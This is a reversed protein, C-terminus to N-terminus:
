HEVLSLKGKGKSKARREMLDYFKQMSATVEKDLIFEKWQQWAKAWNLEYVGEKEEINIILKEDNTMSMMDIDVSIQQKSFGWSVLVRKLGIYTHIRKAGSLAHALVDVLFIICIGFAQPRCSFVCFGLLYSTLRHRLLCLVDWKLHPCTTKVLFFLSLYEWLLSLFTGCKKAATNM